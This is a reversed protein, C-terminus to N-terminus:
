FTGNCCLYYNSCIDHANHLLQTTNFYRLLAQVIFRTLGSLIMITYVCTIFEWMRMYHVHMSKCTAFKHTSDKESCVHTHVVLLVYFDCNKTM